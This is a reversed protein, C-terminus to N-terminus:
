RTSGPKGILFYAVIATSEDLSRQVAVADASQGRAWAAADIGQDQLRELEEAYAREAAEREGRQAETEIQTGAHLTNTSPLASRALWRDLRQRLPWLREGRPDDHELLAPIGDNAIEDLIVQARARESLGFATAPDREAALEFAREYPWRRRALFQAGQPS